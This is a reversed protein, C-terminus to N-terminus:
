ADDDIQDDEVLKLYRVRAQLIRLEGETRHLHQLIYSAVARAGDAYARNEGTAGMPQVSFFGTEHLLDELVAKGAVSGFVDRYQDSLRVQINADSSRKPM